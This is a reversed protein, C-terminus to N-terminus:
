KYAQFYALHPLEESLSDLDEPWFKLGYGVATKKHRYITPSLLRLYRDEAEGYPNLNVAFYIGSAVADAIQLGALQDHNVAKVQHPHIVSWDVRIDKAESSQKLHSLYDRLDDYSMAGRNSFTIEATGDGDGEKHHDRCLWSVRELLLRTAYRYLRFKESQFKEPEKVSPKHILVSVTRLQVESIARVYPVRQEHKLDRFHLAKKPEKGLKKRVERLLHVAGLDNSKRFVAASLVLWRSSGNENPHFVFGEDGSEDIYVTFSAAM